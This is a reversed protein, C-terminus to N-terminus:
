IAAYARAFAMSRSFRCDDGDHAQSAMAYLDDAETLCAQFVTSPLPAPPRPSTPGKHRQYPCHIQASTKGWSLVSCVWTQDSRVQERHSNRLLMDHINSTGWALRGTEACLAMTELEEPDFPQSTLLFILDIEEDTWVGPTQCSNRGHKAIAVPTAQGIM